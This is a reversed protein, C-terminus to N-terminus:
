KLSLNGAPTTTPQRDPLTNAPPVVVILSVESGDVGIAAAAAENDEFATALTGLVADPDGATLQAWHRDLAAQYAAHDAQMAAQTAAVEEDAAKAADALAARRASRAFVSTRAKAAQVHKGRIAAVAVAPPVPAVPQTASAFEARHVNMIADL